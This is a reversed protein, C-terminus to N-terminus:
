PTIQFVVGAQRTGGGATTGYISGQTDLTVSGWPCAGDNGGTFAYLDTESWQGGSPTLKFVSGHGQSGGECTTGYLNGAADRVLASVPGYAIGTFNYIVKETWGGGSPTLEYVAGANNAGGEATGGYVNGAPDRILGGISLLGDTGGNFEHITRESWGAGSPILQFVAGDGDTTTGYLNGVADFIVGAQPFGVGLTPFAYLITEAWGGGKHTLKYVTGCWAADGCEYGGTFTTGYINGAQDFLLDGYYPWAGDGYYSAFAYLVTEIWPSVTRGGSNPAPRLQFVVGGSDNGQSNGGEVTTGYLTGDPGIIVRAAPFAGDSGGTFQYIPTVIWGTGHHVLKFVVGCGLIHCVSGGTVGGYLTTGYFNGAGDITLGAYPAYGDAGGTFNHLVTFTQAQAAQLAILAPLLTLAITVALLRHIPHRASYTM